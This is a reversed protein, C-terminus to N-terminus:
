EAAGKREKEERKELKRLQRVVSGDTLGESLGRDLCHVTYVGESLEATITGPTLTISDALAARAASSVVPSDFAVVVSEPKKRRWVLRIVALNAKVVEAFLLLLLKAAGGALKVLAIDKKVSFGTLACAAGYCLASVGIGFLLIETTIRGNLILWLAFLLVFLRDYGESLNYPLLRLLVAYLVMYEERLFRAKRARITM